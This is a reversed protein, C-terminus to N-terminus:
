GPQSAPHDVVEALDAMRWVRAVMAEMTPCYNGLVPDCDYCAAAHRHAEGAALGVETGRDRVWARGARREVVPEPRCGCAEARRRAGLALDLLRGFEVRRHECELVYRVRQGM